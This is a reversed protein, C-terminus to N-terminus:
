KKRVLVIESCGYYYGMWGFGEFNYCLGPYVDGMSAPSQITITNYDNSVVVEFDTDDYIKSGDSSNSLMYCDGFFLWGVVSNRARGDMTVVDGEAINFVWKPGWKNEADEIGEDILANVSYYPINCWGDVTAVLQNMARYDYDYDEVSSLINVTFKNTVPAEYLDTINQMGEWEGLLLEFLESEVRQQAQEEATTFVESVVFRNYQEDIAMVLVMYETAPKLGKHEISEAEEKRMGVNMAHFSLYANEDELGALMAEAKSREAFYYWYETVGGSPTVDVVMSYTDVEAALEVRENSIQVAPTSFECICIEENNSADWYFAYIYFDCEPRYGANSLVNLKDGNTLMSAIIENYPTGTLESLKEAGEEVENKLTNIDVEAFREKSIVDYYYRRTKDSPKIDFTVTYAALKDEQVSIEFLLEPEEPDSVDTTDQPNVIPDDGGDNTVPPEKECGAFSLLALVACVTFLIKKM